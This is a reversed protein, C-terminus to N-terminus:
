KELAELDKATKPEPKFNDQVYRVMEPVSPFKGDSSLAMSFHTIVFRGLPDDAFDNGTTWRAREVEDALNRLFKGDKERVCDAIKKLLFTHGDVSPQNNLIEDALFLYCNKADRDGHTTEAVNLADFPTKGKYRHPKSM